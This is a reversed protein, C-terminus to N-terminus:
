VGCQLDGGDVVQNFEAEVHKNIGHGFHAFGRKLQPLKSSVELNTQTNHTYIYIFIYMYIYILSIEAIQLNEAGEEGRWGFTGVTSWCTSKRFSAFASTVLVNTSEHFFFFLM